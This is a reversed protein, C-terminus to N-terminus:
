PSTVKAPLSALVRGMAMRKAKRRLGGHEEEEEQSQWHFAPWPSVGM